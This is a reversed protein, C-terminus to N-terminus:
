RMSRAFQWLLHNQMAIPLIENPLGAGINGKKGLIQRLLENQEELLEDTRSKKPGDQKKQEVREDRRQEEMALKIAGVLLGIAGGAIAGKPGGFMGIALGTSGFGALTEARRRWVGENMFQSSIGLAALIAVLATAVGAVRGAKQDSPAGAVVTTGGPGLAKMGFNRESMAHLDAQRKAEKHAEALQVLKRTYLTIAIGSLASAASVAAFGAAALVGLVAAAVKVPKPADRLLSVMRDLQQTAGTLPGVLPEGVEQALMQFSDQLNSISGKLTKSQDEMNTAFRGQSFVKILADIFQAATVGSKGADKFTIGLEKFLEDVKVGAEALQRLEDGQPGNNRVIQGLAYLARGFQETNKGPMANGLARLTPIVQEAAVGSQLLDQAGSAVQKFRFPTKRAFDQYEALKKRAEETSGFINKFAVEIQQLDAAEDVTKKLAAVIGLAAAGTGASIAFQRKAASTLKLGFSELLDAAGGFERQFQRIGETRLRVIIAEAVAAM